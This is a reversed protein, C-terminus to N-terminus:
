QHKWTEILHWPHIASYSVWFSFEEGQKADLLVLALVRFLERLSCTQCVITQSYTLKFEYRM